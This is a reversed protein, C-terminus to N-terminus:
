EPKHNNNNDNNNCQQLKRRRITLLTHTFESQDRPQNARMYITPRNDTINYLAAQVSSFGSYFNNFHRKMLAAQVKKVTVNLLNCKYM